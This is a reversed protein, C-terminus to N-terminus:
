MKEVSPVSHASTQWHESSLISLKGRAVAGAMKVRPTKLPYNKQGPKSALCNRSLPMDYDSALFVAACLAKILFSFIRCM